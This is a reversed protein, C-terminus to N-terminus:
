SATKRAAIAQDAVIAPGQTRVIGYQLGLFDSSVARVINEIIVVTFVTAEAGMFAGAAEDL